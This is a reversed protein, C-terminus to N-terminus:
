RKQTKNNKYSRKYKKTKKSTKNIIYMYSNSSTNWTQHLKINILKHSISIPLLKSSFIISNHKLEKSLKKALKVNVNDSFCLNSIYIVSKPKNYKIKSSLIDNNILEVNCNNNINDMAINYRTKSFEIGILKKFNALECAYKLTNATGCGLDYFTFNKLNSTKTHNIVMNIITKIGDYTLEGYTYNYNKKNFKDIEKTNIQCNIM